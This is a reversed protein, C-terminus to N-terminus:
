NATSSATAAAPSKGIGTWRNSRALKDIGDALRTLKAPVNTCGVNVTIKKTQGNLTVGLVYKSAGVKEPHCDKSKLSYDDKLSFFASKEVLELLKQQHYGDFDVSLNGRQTVGSIGTYQLKGKAYHLAYDPCGAACGQRWLVVEFGKLSDSASAIVATTSAPTRSPTTKPRPRLGYQILEIVVFIAVALLVALLFFRSGSRPLRKRPPRHNANMRLM